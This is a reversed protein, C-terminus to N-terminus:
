CEQRLEVDFVKAIIWWRGELRVMTLVDTFYREAIACNAVVLATSPGILSISQVRDMRKEGRRSPPERQDLVNLYDPQSRCLLHGEATTAYLAQPLMVQAMRASDAEYLADFYTATVAEIAQLDDAYSPGTM